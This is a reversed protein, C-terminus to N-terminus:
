ISDEMSYNRLKERLFLVAYRKRSLLTNINEGTMRAIESFTKGELENLIFVSKQNEPLEDLAEMLETWFLARDNEIMPDSYMEKTGIQDFEEPSLSTEPKRKRYLDIIKNRAARYLWAAMNEVPETVSGDLLTYYVEQLLDEADESSSVRRKIFNLFRSRFDRLFSERSKIETMSLIAAEMIM